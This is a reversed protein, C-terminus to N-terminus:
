ADLLGISSGGCSLYLLGSLALAKTRGVIMSVLLFCAAMACESDLETFDSVDFVNAPDGGIGLLTDEPVIGVGVAYM